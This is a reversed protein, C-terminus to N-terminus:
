RRPTFLDLSLDEEKLVRASTVALYGLPRLQFLIFCYERSQRPCWQCFHLAQKLNRSLPIVYVVMSM